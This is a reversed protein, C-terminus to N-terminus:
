LKEVFTLNMARFDGFFNASMEDMQEVTAWLTTHRGETADGPFLSVLVPSLTGKRWNLRELLSHAEAASLESMPLSLTRLRPRKVGFTQGGHSFKKVSLDRVGVLPGWARNITPRFRPGLVYCGVDIYGATNRPDRFMTFAKVVGAVETTPYHVYNQTPAAGASGAVTSGWLPDTEDYTAAEWGSDYLITGASLETQCLWDIAEISFGDGATGQGAGVQIQVDAGSATSLDAADWPILYVANEAIDPDGGAPIVIDLVARQVGAEYLEFVLVTPHVTYSIAIRFAQLDAGTIPNGGPTPFDFRVTGGVSTMTIRNGDLSYPSEDVDTVAGSFTGGGIVAVASPAIREPEFDAADADMLLTRAEAGLSLNHNIVGIGGVTFTEGYYNGPYEFSSSIYTLAPDTTNIRCKESPEDNGLNSPPMSAVVSGVIPANLRLRPAGLITVNAM